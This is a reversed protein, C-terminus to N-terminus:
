SALVAAAYRTEARPISMRLLTKEAEHDVVTEPKVFVHESQCNASALNVIGAAIQHKHRWDVTGRRSRACGVECRIGTIWVFRPIGRRCKVVHRNLVNCEAPFVVM